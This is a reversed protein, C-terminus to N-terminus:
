KTLVYATNIPAKRSLAKELTMSDPLVVTKNKIKFSSNVILEEVQKIDEFLYIHDLEPANIPITIFVFAGVTALDFAKKLFLEPREVHELLEGMVICDFKNTSDFNFFNMCKLFCNEPLNEICDFKAMLHRRCVEISTQSVDVGTYEKFNRYRVAESIYRGHGPGVELFYNGKANCIQSRYFRFIERNSKWLYLTLALAIMYMRMYEENKYVLNEVQEFSNYRYKQTKSFYIQEEMTTRCFRLYMEAQQEPTIGESDYYAILEELEACEKEDLLAVQTAINKAQLMNHQSISIILRKSFIRNESMSKM